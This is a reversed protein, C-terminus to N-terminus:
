SSFLVPYCPFAVRHICIYFRFTYTPLELGFAAVFSSFYDPGGGGGCHVVVLPFVAVIVDVAVAITPTRSSFQSFFRGAALPVCSFVGERCSYM